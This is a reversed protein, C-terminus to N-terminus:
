RGYSSDDPNALIWGKTTTKEGRYEVELWDGNEAVVGIVTRCMVDAEIRLAGLLSCVPSPLRIAPM